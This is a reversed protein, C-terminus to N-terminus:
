TKGGGKKIATQRNYLIIAEEVRDILEAFTPPIQWENPDCLVAWKAWERPSLMVEELNSHHIKWIDAM